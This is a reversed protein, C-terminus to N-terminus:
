EAQVEDDTDEKEEEEATEEVPEEAESPENVEEVVEAPAEESVEQPLVEKFQGKLYAIKEKESNFHLIERM